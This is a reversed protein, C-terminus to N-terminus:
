RGHSSIRSSTRASFPVRGSGILGAELAELAAQVRDRVGFELLIRSVHVKVTGDAADLAHAIERNSYGAALLRLVETERPTLPEDPQADSPELNGEHPGRCACSRPDWQGGGRPFPAVKSASREM